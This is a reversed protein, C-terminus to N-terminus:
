NPLFAVSIEKVMRYRNLVRELVERELPATSFWVPSDPMCSKEPMMYFVDTRNKVSDPCRMVYFEYLKVPCRLPNERNEQQEHVIERKGPPYFRLCMRQCEKESNRKARKWHKVVHSFCLQLHEEVTKLGYYKTNFYILTNLLVHPSRVGLQQSDWLHEEEVRTVIYEFSDYLSLFKHTLEDLYGIFKAYMSDAFINDARGNEFLYQQIGLCLYFLTDPAYEAGNPKRVEKIFLCLANCLEDATLELLEQKFVRTKLKRLEINKMMIWKKFAAVGFMYKLHVNGDSRVESNPVAHGQVTETVTLARELDIAPEELDAVPELDEEHDGSKALAGAMHVLDAQLPDSPVSERVTKIEKLVGKWSSKTTPIFVPVPVPLPFPVPVPCPMSFMHMPAPVYIPVPIPILGSPKQDETQTTKDETTPTSNTAQDRQTVKCMTGMNRQPPLPTPMVIIQHTIKGSSVNSIPAISCSPPLGNTSATQSTTADSSYVPVYVRTGSPLTAARVENGKPSFLPDRSSMAYSSTKRLYDDSM